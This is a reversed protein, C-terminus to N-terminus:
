SNEDEDVLRKFKNLVYIQLHAENLAVAPENSM